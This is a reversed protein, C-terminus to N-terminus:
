LKKYQTYLCYKYVCFPSSFPRQGIWKEYESGFILYKVCAEKLMGMIHPHHKYMCTFVFM